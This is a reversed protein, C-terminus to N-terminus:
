QVCVTGVLVLYWKVKESWMLLHVSTFPTMEFYSARVFWFTTFVSHLANDYLTRTGQTLAFFLFLSQKKM